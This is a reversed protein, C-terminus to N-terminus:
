EKDSEKGMCTILSCQTSIETSYLLDKNIIQKIYQLTYGEGGGNGKHSVGQSSDGSSAPGTKSLTTGVGTHIHIIYM